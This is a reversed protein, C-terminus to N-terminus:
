KFASSHFHTPRSLTRGTAFQKMASCSRRRLSPGTTSRRLRQFYIVGSFASGVLGYNRAVHTM